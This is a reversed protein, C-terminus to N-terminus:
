GPEGEKAAAAFIGRAMLSPEKKARLAYVDRRVRAVGRDRPAALWATEV